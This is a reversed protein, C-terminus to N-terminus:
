VEEYIEKSVILLIQKVIMEKIRVDKKGVLLIILLFEIITVKLVSLTVSSSSYNPPVPLGLSFSRKKESTLSGFSKWNNM